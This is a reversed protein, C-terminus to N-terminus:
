AFTEVFSLLAFLDEATVCCYLIQLEDGQRKFACLYSVEHQKNAVATCEEFGHQQLTHIAEEIPRQINTSM